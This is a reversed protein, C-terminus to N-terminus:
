QPPPPLSLDQGGSAPAAGPAPPLGADPAAPLGADPAAPAAAPATSTTPPLGADPAAPLGADPAAPAAAPATSTTPPLGADPAAPLGADPAAPAAAPATSTTPPLGADPAAPLGADSAPVASPAPLGADAANSTPKVPAAPAKPAEAKAEAAKKKAKTSTGIKLGASDRRAESELALVMPRQKYNALQGDKLLWSDVVKVSSMREFVGTVIVETAMKGDPFKVSVKDGVKIGDLRGRDIYTTDLLDYNSTIIHIPRDYQIRAELLCPLAPTLALGLLLARTRM